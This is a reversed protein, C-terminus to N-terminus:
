PPAAGAVDDPHSRVAGTPLPPAIVSRSWPRSPELPSPDAPRSPASLRRLTSPPALRTAAAPAASVAAPATITGSSAPAVPPPTATEGFPVVQM